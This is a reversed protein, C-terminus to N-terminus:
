ACEGATVMCWTPASVPPSFWGFWESTRGVLGGITDAATPTIVAWVAIALTVASSQEAARAGPDAVIGCASIAGSNTM